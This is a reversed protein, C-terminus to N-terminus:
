EHKVNPSSAILTYGCGSRHGHLDVVRGDNAYTPAGEVIKNIGHGHIPCAVQDGIRAIGIGAISHTSSATIVVVGHFTKAGLRVVQLAM